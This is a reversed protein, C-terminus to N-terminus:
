EFFGIDEVQCYLIVYVTGVWCLHGYVISDIINTRLCLFMGLIRACAYEGAQSIEEKIKGLRRIEHYLSSVDYVGDEHMM